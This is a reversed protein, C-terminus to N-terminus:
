RWLYQRRLFHFFDAGLIEKVHDQGARNFKQGVMIDEAVAIATHPGNPFIRGGGLFLGDEGLKGVAAAYRQADIVPQHFSSLLPFDDLVGGASVLEFAAAIIYVFGNLGFPVQLIHHFQQGVEALVTFRQEVARHKDFQLRM